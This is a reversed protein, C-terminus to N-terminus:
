AGVKTESNTNLEPPPGAKLMTMLGRIGGGSKGMQNVFTFLSTLNECLWNMQNGLVDMRRALDDLTTEAPVEDM